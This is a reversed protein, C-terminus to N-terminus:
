TSKDMAASATNELTACPRRRTPTRPSLASERQRLIRKLVATIVKNSGILNIAPNANAISLWPMSCGSKAASICLAATGDRESQRWIVGDRRCGQFNRRHNNDGVLPLYSFHKSPATMRGWCVIYWSHLAQAHASEQNFDKNSTYVWVWERQAAM